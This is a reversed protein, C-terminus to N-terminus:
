RGTAVVTNTVQEEEMVEKIAAVLAKVDEPFIQGINGIRFANAKGLKGPYIIFGRNNLKEYFREFNFAPDEPYLFSSIIHGQIAPQLYQKFGLVSMGQDLVAKNTKYRKERATIGGEEGLEEMAQRFAMLSLTPPTFRFQGNGELGAWQEYLDLSLSRAQGKAKELESKKVSLLLLARYEKM